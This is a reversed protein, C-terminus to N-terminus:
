GTTAQTHCWAHVTTTPAGLLDTAGTPDGREGIRALLRMIQLNPELKRGLFVRDITTMIQLPITILRKDPALIQRYTDLAQHLTLQEPGHIYFDRNAAAPTAFAHAVQVAFDEACVPHLARRQRGLAVLVPGQVHRPLTNTFYTPRFFTYPVGSEQIAQEAALKARHEAIKPGYEERVLSGTLYSIRELGHRAAAAAVTATGHHEVADLQAPNEVGLSVHVADIGRVARDVAASDTVSGPMYELEPGLRARARDPDRILVRVHHGDALLQRAVPTGILGTAGVVLIREIRV